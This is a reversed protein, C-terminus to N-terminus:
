NKLRAGSWTTVSVRVAPLHQEDATPDTVGGFWQCSVVIRRLLIGSRLLRMPWQYALAAQTDRLRRKDQGWGERTTVVSNFHPLIAHVPHDQSEINGHQVAGPHNKAKPHAAKFDRHRFASMLPNANSRRKVGRVMGKSLKNDKETNVHPHLSSSGDFFPHTLGPIHVGHNHELSNRTERLVCEEERSWGGERDRGGAEM